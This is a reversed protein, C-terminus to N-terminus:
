SYHYKCSIVIIADNTIKYVLRHEKTIRRSWHGALDHKLMEPKGIGDQLNEHIADILREIRDYTKKNGKKWEELQSNALKTFKVERM